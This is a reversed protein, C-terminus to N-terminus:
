SRFELRRESAPVSGSVSANKCCQANYSVCSATSSIFAIFWDSADLHTVALMDTNEESAPQSFVEKQCIRKYHYFM